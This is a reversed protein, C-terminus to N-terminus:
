GGGLSQQFQEYINGAGQTGAGGGGVPSRRVPGATLENPIFRTDFGGFFLANYLVIGRVFDKGGFSMNDGIFNLFEKLDPIRKIYQELSAKFWRKLEVARKSYGGVSVGAAKLEQAISDAAKLVENWGPIDKTMGIAQLRQAPIMNDLNFAKVANSGYRRALQRLYADHSAMRTDWAKSNPSIGDADLQAFFKKDFATKADWFGRVKPDTSYGTFGHAKLQKVQFLSLWGVPQLAWKHLAAWQESQTKNGWTVAEPTPFTEGGYEYKQQEAHDRIKRIRDYVESAQQDKGAASLREAKDYLPQLVKWYPTLVAKSYYDLGKALESTPDIQNLVKAYAESVIGVTKLIDPDRIGGEATSNALERLAARALQLQSAEISKRPISGPDEKEWGRRIKEIIANAEPNLARWANWNLVFEDLAGAVQYKHSLWDAASKGYVDMDQRLKGLYHRYSEVAAVRQIYEDTTLVRRAGTTIQANWIAQEDAGTYPPAEFKKGTLISKGVLYAISGPHEGLFDDTLKWRQDNWRQWESSNVNKPQDGYIDQLFVTADDRYKDSVHFAAPGTTAGLMQIFSWARFVHNARAKWEDLYDDRADLYEKDTKFQERLPLKLGDLEMDAKAQKLANDFASDHLQKVYEPSFLELQWPDV